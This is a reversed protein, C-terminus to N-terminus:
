PHISVENNESNIVEISNYANRELSLECGGIVLMIKPFVLPTSAKGGM